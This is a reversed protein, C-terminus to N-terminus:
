HYIWLFRCLGNKIKRPVLLQAGAVQARPHSPQQNPAAHSDRCLVAVLSATHGLLADLVLTHAFPSHTKGPKQEICVYM